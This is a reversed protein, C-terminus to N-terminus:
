LPGELQRVLQAHVAVQPALGVQGVRLRGVVALPQLRLDPRRAPGPQRGREGLLGIQGERDGGGDAEGVLRLEVRDLEQV